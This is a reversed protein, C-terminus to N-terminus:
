DRNERNQREEGAAGAPESGSRGVDLRAARERAPQGNTM